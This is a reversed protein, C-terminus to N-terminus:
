FLEAAGSQMSEQRVPNKATNGRAGVIAENVREVAARAPDGGQAFMPASEALTKALADAQEIRKRTHGVLQSAVDQFQLTGVAVRVNEDVETAIQSMDKISGAIAANVDQIGRLTDEAQVRAEMASKVERKAIHDILAEADQIAHHVNEMESRIQQSFQGTRDSLLRVEEAVVAFGRGGDGARAAEIAANLALLNTQRSIGQIEELARLISNVRQKVADMREVLSQATESTRSTSEVMRKIASSADQVFGEVSAPALALQQQRTTLGRTNNFSVILKGIADGLIDQLRTLEGRVEGFQSDFEAMCGSLALQTRAALMQLEQQCQAERQVSQDAERAAIRAASAARWGLWLCAAFPPLAAAAPGFRHVAAASTAALLGALTGELFSRNQM